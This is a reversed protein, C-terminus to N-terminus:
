VAGPRATQMEGPMSVSSGLSRSTTLLRKCKSSRVPLRYTSHLRLATDPAGGEVTDTAYGQSPAESVAAQLLGGEHFPIYKSDTQAPASPDPVLATPYSTCSQLRSPATFRQLSSHTSTRPSLRDLLRPFTLCPSRPRLVHLQRPHPHINMCRVKETLAALSATTACRLATRRRAHSRRLAPLALTLSDSRQVTTRGFCEDERLQQTTPLM